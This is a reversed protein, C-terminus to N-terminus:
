KLTELMLVKTLRIEGDSTKEVTYITTRTEDESPIPENDIWQPINWTETVEVQATTGQTAVTSIKFNHCSATADFGPFGPLLCYGSKTYGSMIDGSLTYTGKGYILDIKEQLESIKVAHFYTIASNEKLWDAEETTLLESKSTNPYDSLDVVPLTETRESNYVVYCYYLYEPITYNGDVTKTPFFNASGEMNGSYVRIKADAIHFEENLKTVFDKAEQETIPEERVSDIKKAVFYFVRMADVIDVENDGNTDCRLLQEDTLLEKKAVHYFILMADVIDVEGNGDADGYVIDPTDKAYDGLVYTPFYEPYAIDAWDEIVDKGYDTMHCNRYIYDQVKDWSPKTGYGYDAWYSFWNDMLLMGMGFETGVKPILFPPLDSEGKVEMQTAKWPLFIELTYGNINAHLYANLLKGKYQYKEVITSSDTLPEPLPYEPDFKYNVTSKVQTGIANAIAGGAGSEGSVNGGELGWYYYERWSPVPVGIEGNGTAFGAYATFAFESLGLMRSSKYNLPDLLVWFSDSLEFEPTAKAYEYANPNNLWDQQVISTNNVGWARSCDTVDAFIYIGGATDSIVQSLRTIDTGDPINSYWVASIDASAPTFKPTPEGTDFDEDESMVMGATDISLTERFGKDYIADRQGDLTPAEEARPLVRKDATEANTGIAFGAVLSATLCLAIIVSIIRKM